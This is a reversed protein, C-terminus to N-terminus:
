AVAVRAFCIDIDTADLQSKLAYNANGDAPM